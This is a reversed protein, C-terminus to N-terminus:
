VGFVEAELAAKEDIEFGFAEALRALWARETDSVTEDALVVLAAVRYVAAREESGAVMDALERPSAPLVLDQHVQRVQEATFNSEGLRAQIASKEAPDMDGDALAAAVMARVLAFALAAPVEDSESSPLPPPQPPAAPRTGPIPPLPPAVQPVPPPAARPDPPPAPAAAGTAGVGSGSRGAQEALLAGVLAAGGVLLLNKGGVLRVARRVPLGTTNGILDGLMRDLFGM